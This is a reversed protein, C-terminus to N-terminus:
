GALEPLRAAIRNRRMAKKRESRRRLERELAVQMIASVSTEDDWAALRLAQEMPSSLTIELTM